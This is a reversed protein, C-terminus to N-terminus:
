SYLCSNRVNDPMSRLAGEDLDRLMTAMDYPMIEVPDAEQEAWAIEDPAHDLEGVAKVFALLKSSTSTLELYPCDAIRRTHFFDLVTAGWLPLGNGAMKFTGYPGQIVPGKPDRPWQRRIARHRVTDPGPKSATSPSKAKREDLFVEDMLKEIRKARNSAFM